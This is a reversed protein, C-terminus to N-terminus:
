CRCTLAKTILGKLGAGRGRGVVRRVKEVDWELWDCFVELEPSAIFERADAQRESRKRMDKLNGQLDRLAMQVVAALLLLEPAPDRFTLLLYADDSM